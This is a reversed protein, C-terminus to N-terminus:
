FSNKCGETNQILTTLRDAYVKRGLRDNEWTMEKQDTVQLRQYGPQETQQSM